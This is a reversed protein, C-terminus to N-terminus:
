LKIAQPPFYGDAMVRSAFGSRQCVHGKRYSLGRNDRTKCKELPVYVPTQFEPPHILNLLIDEGNMIADVYDRFTRYREDWIDQYFKKHCMLGGGPLLLNWKKFGTWEYVCEVDDCDLFRRYGGVLKNKNDGELWVDFLADVSKATVCQDDDISFIAETRVGETMYRNLLSNKARYMVKVKGKFDTHKFHTLLSEPCKTLPDNWSIIISHVRQLQAYKKLENNALLAQTRKYTPIVITFVGDLDQVARKNLILLLALVLLGVIFVDKLRMM